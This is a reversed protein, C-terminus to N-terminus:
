GSEQRKQAWPETAAVHLEEATYGGNSYETGAYIELSDLERDAAM